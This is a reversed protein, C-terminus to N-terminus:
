AMNVLAAHQESDGPYDHAFKNRTNRTDQWTEACRIYVLKVQRNLENVMPREEYPELLYPLIPPFLRSGTADQLKTFRLPLQDLSQVQADTNLEM